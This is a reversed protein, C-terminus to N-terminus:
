ISKLLLMRKFMTTLVLFSSLALFSGTGSRCEGNRASEDIDKIIPTCKLLCIRVRAEWICHMSRVCAEWVCHMYCHASVVSCNPYPWTADHWKCICINPSMISGLCGNIMDSIHERPFPGYLHITPRGACFSFGLM